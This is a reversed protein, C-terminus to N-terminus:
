EGAGGGADPAYVEPPAPALADLLRTAVFAAAFALAFVGATLALARRRRDRAELGAPREGPRLMPGEGDHRGPALRVPSLDLEHRLRALRSPAPPPTAPPASDSIQSNLSSIESDPGGGAGGAREVLFPERVAAGGRWLFCGEDGGVPDYVFAAQHPLDFFNEHIFLDMGSLFIGFGPHTHYWGVIGEGEHGARRRREDLAANIADWTAATFTVQTGRSEAATGRIVDAVHLYPGADDRCARGVLVGCIEVDSRERGHAHLRDLAAPAFVAQYEGSTRGAVGPTPREPLAAGGVRGADRAPDPPATPTPDPM